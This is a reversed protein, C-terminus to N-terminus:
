DHGYRAQILNELVASEGLLGTCISQSYHLGLDIDTAVIVLVSISDGM